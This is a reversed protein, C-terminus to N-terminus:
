EGSERITNFILFLGFSIFIDCFTLFQFLKDTIEFFVISGLSIMGLCLFILFIYEKKNM